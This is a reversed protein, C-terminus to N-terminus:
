AARQSTQTMALRLVDNVSKSSLFKAAVDDDLQVFKRKVGDLGLIEYAVGGAYQAAFKNPVANDFDFEPVELDDDETEHNPNQNPNM